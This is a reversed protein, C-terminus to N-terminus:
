ESHAAKSAARFMDRLFNDTVTEDNFNQFYSVILNSKEVDFRVGSMISSWLFETSTILAVRDWKYFKMLDVIIQGSSAYVGVTRSFLPFEEKNSLEVSGCAYSVLPMNWYNSLYGVAKCGHSCAPGILAHIQPSTKAYMDVTATLAVSEECMSDRWDFTLKIGPLLSSNANVADIGILVGSALRPGATWKDGSWPILVGLKVESTVNSTTGFQKLFLCLLILVSNLHM